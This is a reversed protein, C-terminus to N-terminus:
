LLKAQNPFKVFAETGKNYDIIGQNIWCIIWYNDERKNNRNKQCAMQSLSSGAVLLQYIHLQM